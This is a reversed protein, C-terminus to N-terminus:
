TGEDRWDRQTGLLIRPSAPRLLLRFLVAGGGVNQVEILPGAPPCRQNALICDANLKLTSAHGM